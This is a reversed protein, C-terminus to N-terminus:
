EPRLHEKGTFEDLMAKPDTVVDTVYGGLLHTSRVTAKRAQIVSKHSLHAAEDASAANAGTVAFMPAVDVDLSMLAVVDAFRSSEFRTLLSPLDVKVDDTGTWMGSDPNLWGRGSNLVPDYFIGASVLGVKQALVRGYLASGHIQVTSSPAYIEGMFVSPAGTSLDNAIQVSQAGSAFLQISTAGRGYTATGDHPPTAGRSDGVYAGELSTTGFVIISLTADGEVEIRTGSMATLDGRVILVTPELIRLVCELALAGDVDILVGGGGALGVTIEGSLALPAGHLFSGTLSEKPQPPLPTPYIPKFPAPPAPIHILGPVSREKAAIEIDKEEKSRPPAGPRVRVWGQVVSDTDLEVTPEKSLDGVFLPERLAAYPSNPWVAIRSNDHIRIANPTGDTTFVAFESLDLDARHKRDPRILRGVARASQRIDGLEVRSLVAVAESDATAPLETRLDLVEAHYSANGIEAGSFLIRTTGSATDGGLLSPEALLAMAVDLGGAAAARAASARVLTDSVAASDDRHAALAAGLVAATAVAVLALVMAMGRHRPSAAVRTRPHQAPAPLM